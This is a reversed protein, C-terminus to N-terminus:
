VRDFTIIYQIEGVFDREERVTVTYYPVVQAEQIEDFKPSWGHFTRGNWDVDVRLPIFESFVALLYKSSYEVNRFHEDAITIVGRRNKM